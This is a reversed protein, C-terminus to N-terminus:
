PFVKAIASRTLSVLNRLRARRGYRRTIYPQTHWPVDHVCKTLKKIVLTRSGFSREIQWRPDERLFDALMSVSSMELDDLVMLGNQKLKDATFFWDVIPWPFAHKGDIFVLDLDTAECGPLYEDSSKTVFEITDLSIQNAAAYSRIKAVEEASPTVAIHTSQRLAFALTSIGAGTELSRSRKSVSDFLFRALEPQVGYCVPVRNLINQVIPGRLSSNRESFPQTTETDGCHFAPSEALIKELLSTSVGSERSHRLTITGSSSIVEQLMRNTLM